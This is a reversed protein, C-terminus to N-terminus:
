DEEIEKKLGNVLTPMDIKEEITYYRPPKEQWRRLVAEYQGFIRKLQFIQKLSLEDLSERTYMALQDTVGCVTAVEGQHLESDPKVRSLGGRLSDIQVSMELKAVHFEFAKRKKLLGPVVLTLFLQFFVLLLFLAIAFVTVIDRKRRVSYRAKLEKRTPTGMNLLELSPGM